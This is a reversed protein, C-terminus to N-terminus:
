YSSVVSRQLPQSLM